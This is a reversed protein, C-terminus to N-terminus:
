YILTYGAYSWTTDNWWIYVTPFSLHAVLSGLVSGTAAVAAVCAPTTCVAATIYGVVSATIAVVATELVWPPIKVVTYTDGGGGGGSFYNPAIFRSSAALSTASQQGVGITPISTESGVPITRALYRPQAPSLPSAHTQAATLDVTTGISAIALSLGVTVGGRVVTSAKM